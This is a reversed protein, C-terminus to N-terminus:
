REDSEVNVTEKGLKVSVIAWVEGNLRLLATPASLHYSFILIDYVPRKWFENVALSFTKKWLFRALSQLFPIDCVTGIEAVNLTNLYM